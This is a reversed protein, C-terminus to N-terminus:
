GIVHPKVHQRVELLLCWQDGLNRLIKIVFTHSETQDTGEGPSSRQESGKYNNETYIEFRAFLCVFM